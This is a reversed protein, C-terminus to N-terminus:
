SLEFRNESSRVGENDDLKNRKFPKFVKKNM